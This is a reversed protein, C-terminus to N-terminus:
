GRTPEWTVRGRMRIAKFLAVVTAWNLLCFVYALNLVAPRRGLGRTARGAAAAGYFVVQVLLLLRYVPNAALVISSVLATALCPPGLLRCAKHSLTQFWLRNLGPVFVWPHRFLLQYHGAITRTKRAFEARASRPTRDYAIAGPEFLVRYGQRVISLPILVDDLLSPPLGHFLRRRIAYIPGTAGVTSHILAERRRIFTEYRWYVGSGEGVQSRGRDPLLVLEGSVGGVAPDSFGAVLRRLAQRHFRQRVDALVVIDGRAQPILANLVASKGRRRVFDVVRVGQGSFRRAEASTADSSGDCGVILELRSRPYDLGLVNSIRRGIRDAENHAVIVVSVTPECPSGVTPRPRLRSWGALLLPYGAYTYALTALSAWLAVEPVSM